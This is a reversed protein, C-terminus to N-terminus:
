KKKKSSNGNTENAKRKLTNPSGTSKKDEKSKTEDVPVEKEQGENAKQDDRKMEEEKDAKIKARKLRRRANKIDNPRMRKLSLQMRKCVEAAELAEELSNIDVMVSTGDSLSLKFHVDIDDDISIERPVAAIDVPTAAEVQSAIEQEYQKIKQEIDKICEVKRKLLIKPDCIDQCLPVIEGMTVPDISRTSLRSQIYKIRKTLNNLFKDIGGVLPNGLVDKGVGGDTAPGGGDAATGNNNDNLDKTDELLKLADQSEANLIADVEKSLDEKDEVPTSPLLIKKCLPDIKKCLEEPLFNCAELQKLTTMSQMVKSLVSDEVTSPPKDIDPLDVKEKSLKILANVTPHPQEKAAEKAKKKVVSPLAEVRIPIYSPGGSKPKINIFNSRIFQTIKEPLVRGSPKAIVPKNISLTIPSKAVQPSPINQITAVASLAGVSSALKPVSVLQVNNSPLTLVVGNGGPHALNGVSPGVLPAGSSVLNGGGVTLGGGGFQGLGNRFQLVSGGIGNMGINGIGLRYSISVPLQISGNGLNLVHTGSVVPTAGGSFPSAGGIFPTAGGSVPRAGGIIPTAGGIITTSGGTIPAHVTGNPVNVTQQPSSAEVSSPKQAKPTGEAVASPM